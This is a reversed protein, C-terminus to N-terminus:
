RRQKSGAKDDPGGGGLNVDGGAQINVSNRGSRQRQTLSVARKGFVWGLIALPVAVLAGEFLWEKNAMIWDM